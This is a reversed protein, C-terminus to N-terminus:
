KRGLRRRIISETIAEFYRNARKQKLMKTRLSECVCEDEECDDDIGCHNMKIDKFLEKVRRKVIDPGLNHLQQSLVKQTYPDNYLEAFSISNDSDIRKWVYHWISRWSGKTGYM